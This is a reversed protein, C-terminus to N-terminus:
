RRSRACLGLLEGVCPLSGGARSCAQLSDQPVPSAQPVTSRPLGQIHAPDDRCLETPLCSSVLSERLTVYFMTLLIVPRVMTKLQAHATAQRQKERWKLLALRCLVRGCVRVLTRLADTKREQALKLAERQQKEAEGQRAVRISRLFRCIIKAAQEKRKNCRLEALFWRTRKACLMRYSAQIEVAAALQVDDKFDRWIHKWRRHHLFDRVSQQLKAAAFSLVYHRIAQYDCCHSSTLCAGILRCALDDMVLACCCRSARRRKRSVRM